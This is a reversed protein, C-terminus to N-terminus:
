VEDEESISESHAESEGEAAKPPKEAFIEETDLIEEPFEIQLGDGQIEEKNEEEPKEDKFIEAEAEAKFDEM